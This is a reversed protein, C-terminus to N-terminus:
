ELAAAQTQAGASPDSAPDTPPLPPESSPRGRQGAVLWAELVRSQGQGVTPERIPWQLVRLARVM